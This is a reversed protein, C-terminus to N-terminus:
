LDFIITAEWHKGKEAVEIQHYTVAKIERLIEHLAPDFPITKLTANLYSPSLSHIVADTVLQNEGKSYGAIDDPSM